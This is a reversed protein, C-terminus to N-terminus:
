SVLRVGISRLDELVPAIIQVSPSSWIDPLCTFVLPGAFMNSISLFFFILMFFIYFCTNFFLCRGCGATM